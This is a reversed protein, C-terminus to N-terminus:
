FISPKKVELLSRNKMNKGTLDKGMDYMEMLKRESVADGMNAKSRLESMYLIKDLKSNDSGVSLTQLLDASGVNLATNKTLEEYRHFEDWFDKQEDKTLDILMGKSAISANLLNTQAGSVSSTKAQDIKKLQDFKRSLEMYTVNETKKFDVEKDVDRYKKTMIQPLEKHKEINLVRKYVRTNLTKVLNEAAKPDNRWLTRFEQPSIDTNVKEIGRKPEKKYSYSVDKERMKALVEKAASKDKKILNLLDAQKMM